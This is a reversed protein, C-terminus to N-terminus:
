PSPAPPHPRMPTLRPASSWGARRAGRWQLPIRSRRERIGIPSGSFLDRFEGGTSPHRSAGPHDEVGRNVGISEGEGNMSLPGPPSTAALWAALAGAVASAASGGLGGALPLGKELYLSLGSEIGLKDLMARAAIAAANRDAERPVLEADRGTVEMVHDGEIVDSLEVTVRDGIGDVALGLVDFGPGVNGITAPAFATRGSM